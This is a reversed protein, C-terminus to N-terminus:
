FVLGFTVNLFNRALEGEEKGVLNTWNYKLEFFPRLGGVNVELGGTLAAGFRSTSPELDQGVGTILNEFISNGESVSVQRFSYMLEASLYPNILSRTPILTVGAYVPIFTTVTKMTVRSGDDLTANQEQGPFQTYQVGGSFSLADSLGFRLKAGLHYGLSAASQYASGIGSTDLQNYVSTIADNPISPGVFVGIALREPENEAHALGVYFVCVACFLTLNKM